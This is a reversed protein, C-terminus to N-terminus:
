RCARRRLRSPRGFLTASATQGITVTDPQSTSLLYDPSGQYDGRHRAHGRLFELRVSLGGGLQRRRADDVESELQWDRPSAWCPM